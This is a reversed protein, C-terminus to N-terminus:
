SPGGQHPTQHISTPDHSNRRDSPRYPVEGGRRPPARPLTWRTISRREQRQRRQSRGLISAVRRRPAEAAQLLSAVPPPSGGFNHAIIEAFEGDLLEPDDCLMAVFEDSVRANDNASDIGPHFGGVM